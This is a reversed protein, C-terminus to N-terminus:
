YPNDLSFFSAISDASLCQLRKVQMVVGRIQLATSKLCAKPTVSVPTPSYVQFHQLIGHARRGSWVTVGHLLEKLTGSRVPAARTASGLVHRCDLVSSNSFHIQRGFCLM